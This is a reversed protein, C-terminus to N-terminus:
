AKPAEKIQASRVLAKGDRISQVLYRKAPCVYNCSGCEICDLIHHRHLDDLDAQRSAEDLTTPMLHMPCATLCRACRICPSEQPTQGDAENFVLIANNQKIISADLRDLAVGMMPGGMIVKGPEGELGGAAELVDPIAAGIPVSVNVPNKVASGDITLTKRVLPMGTKLIRDITYATTVNITLVHVDHPLGGVPVVRGTTAYILMKEAGQPYRTKVVVVDIADSQRKELAERLSAIAQPKNDEIGIVARPISMHTMVAEIGDIIGAPEELCLLDDVTIYPECEAANVVLIDPEQGAPPTMKMHTPFGAGGLGVLGSARIAEIFSARDTVQPKQVSTDQNYQGDSELTIVEVAQGTSAVEKKVSVVTGSVSAHIPVALPGSPEGIVQGVLVPDGKKVIPTCPPGVHMSMPIRVTKFDTLELAAMARTAKHDKPHVGGHFRFLQRM